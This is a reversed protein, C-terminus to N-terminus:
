KIGLFINKASKDKVVHWEYKWLQLAAHKLLGGLSVLTYSSKKKSYVSKVGTQRDATLACPKGM